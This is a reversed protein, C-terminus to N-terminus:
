QSCMFPRSPLGLRGRAECGGSGVLAKSDLELEQLEEVGLEGWTITVDFVGGHVARGPTDLELLPPTPWCKLNGSGTVGTADLRVARGMGGTERSLTTEGLGATSDTFLLSLSLVREPLESLIPVAYLISLWSEVVDTSPSPNLVQLEPLCIDM